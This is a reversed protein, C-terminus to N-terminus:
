YGFYNMERKRNKEPVRKKNKTVVRNNPQRYNSLRLSARPPTKGMDLPM